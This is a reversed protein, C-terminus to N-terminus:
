EQRELTPFLRGELGEARQGMGSGSSVTSLERGVQEGKSPLELASAGHTGERCGQTGGQTTSPEADGLKLSSVGEKQSSARCPFVM